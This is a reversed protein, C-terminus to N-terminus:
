VEGLLILDVLIDRYLVIAAEKDAKIVIGPGISDAFYEITDDYPFYICWGIRTDWFYLDCFRRDDVERENRINYGGYAKNYTM